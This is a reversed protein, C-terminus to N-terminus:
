AAVAHVVYQLPLADAVAEEPNAGTARAMSRIPELVKERTPEEFIRSAANVIRFGTSQFLQIITRRTFWRLHTRDLLGSDEYHMMGCNLRAQLSWHQANPICAVINGTDTMRARIRKLVSWPDKFHELTDGFIWCDAPFLSEFTSAEMSEMDACVVEDCHRRSLEAYRPEIEIGIYHCAPCLRKYERALAGSSSGVEVVRSLPRPVMALLDPNYGEHAPTQELTM